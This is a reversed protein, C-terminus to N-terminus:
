KPLNNINIKQITDKPDCSDCIAFIVKTNESDEKAPWEIGFVIYFSGTNPDSSDVQKNDCVNCWWKQSM